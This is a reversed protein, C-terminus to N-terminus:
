WGALPIKRVPPPFAADIAQWDEETLVLSLSGYNEEVHLMHSAKPIPMVGPRRMLWALIVQTPTAGHRRAIEKLTKHNRLRGEGLPTYAMVPIRHRESWPILDYEIGRNGLNYLVQNAACEAGNPLSLIHEMDAVDLNSMGWHRIKGEKRLEVLARVTESFPYRGIWHLLYLDIYDTGLRRLSRECARKTGEYSANSPLVKSVIFAKDRCPRVAEGVLEETGYMEATDILTLGLEIGRRLAQIEESRRRGGMQYTGQGLPCIQQGDPFTILRQEMKRGAIVTYLEDYDRARAYTDVTRREEPKEVGM